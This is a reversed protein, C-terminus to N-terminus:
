FLILFFFDFFFWAMGLCCVGMWGLGGVWGVGLGGMGCVGCGRVSGSVRRGVGGGCM